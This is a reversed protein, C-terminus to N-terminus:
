LPRPQPASSTVALGGIRELDINIKLFAVVIRLDTAVPQYLALSKLCEEEIEIERQDLERDRECVSQALHEDRETLAQVSLRVQEEALASLSLVVMKLRELERRLHVSM